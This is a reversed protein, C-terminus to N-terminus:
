RKTSLLSNNDLEAVRKKIAVWVREPKKYLNTQIKVSLGDTDIQIYLGKHEIKTVDEWRVSVIGKWSYKRIGQATVVTLLEMVQNGLIFITAGVAILDIALIAPWSSGNPLPQGTQLSDVLAVTFYWACGWWPILLLVTFFLIMEWNKSFHFSTEDTKQDM